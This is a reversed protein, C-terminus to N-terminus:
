YKQQNKQLEDTDILYVYSNYKLKAKNKRILDAIASSTSQFLKGATSMLFQSNGSSGDLTVGQVSNSGLDRTFERFASAPVYLGAMGDLDYVQLKVPLIKGESLISRVTLTVRQGTFGSIEAYIYSGKVITFQGARVTELLKLRIRSGAYGTIDEDVAANIFPAHEQPLITNFSGAPKTEKSVPLTVEAAKIAALRDSAEKRQLQEKYAPDNAKGVSDMYAMQQKFVAMPDPEARGQPEPRAPQATRPKNMEEIARIMQQDALRDNYKPQMGGGPTNGIGASSADTSGKRYNRVPPDVSLEAPITNVASTGDADKYTNRYADLKDALQRKRVDASVEGVSSKLAATEAVERPPKEFGSKWIYFFFCLFPLLILPLVYKPQKFNINM